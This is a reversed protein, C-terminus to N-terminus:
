FHSGVVVREFLCLAVDNLLKDLHFFIIPNMSVVKIGKILGLSSRGM